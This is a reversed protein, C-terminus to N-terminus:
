LLRELRKMEDALDVAYRDMAQRDLQQPEISLGAIITIFVGNWYIAFDSDKEALFQLHTTSM